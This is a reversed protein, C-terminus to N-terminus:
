STKQAKESLVQLGRVFREDFDFAKVKQQGICNDIHVLWFGQDLDNADIPSVAM